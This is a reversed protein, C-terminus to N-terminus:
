HVRRLTRELTKAEPKPEVTVLSPKSSSYSRRVAPEPTQRYTKFALLSKALESLTLPQKRKASHLKKLKL